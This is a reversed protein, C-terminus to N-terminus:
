RVVIEVRRNRAEATNDPTPVLLDSEGHSKVDVLAPDLGAQLLLERILEARRQGLTVNAAAAGTTDTHGVVSVEPAVRGKVTALVDPVLAKSEATLTDGGTEFYLDFRRAAPPQVALASGFLRQIDADSM